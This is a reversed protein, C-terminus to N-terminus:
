EAMRPVPVVEKLATGSLRRSRAEALLAVLREAAEAPGLGEARINSVCNRDADTRGPGPGFVFYAGLSDAVGLGPREGLLTLAMTAHLLSGIEDQVGVRGQLVICVPTLRFGQDLLRPILHSLLGPGQRSAALASLGDSVVIALDCAIIGSGVARLREASEDALRRGLDPRRIFTARDPAASQLVLVELGMARLPSVLSAPDLTALVADRAGAHAFAFDLTERTPLSGGSRGIAIRAATYRRLGAWADGPAGESTPKLPLSPM